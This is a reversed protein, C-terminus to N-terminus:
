SSQYHRPQLDLLTWHFESLNIGDNQQSQALISTSVSDSGQFLIMLNNPPSIHSMPRRFQHLILYRGLTTHYRVRTDIPSVDSHTLISIASSRSPGTRHLPILHAIITPNPAAVAAAWLGCGEEDGDIIVVAVVRMVPSAFTPGASGAPGVFVPSAPGAFGAPGSGAPSVFGIANENEDEIEVDVKDGEGEIKDVSEDEVKDESEDEIEARESDSDGSEEIEEGSEIEKGSEETSEESGDGSEDNESNEDDDKVRLCSSFRVPGSPGSSKVVQQGRTRKPLAVLIGSKDLARETKSQQTPPGAQDAAMDQQVHQVSSKKLGTAQKTAKATKSSHTANIASQLEPTKKRSPPPLPLAAADDNTIPTPHPSEGVNDDDTIPLPHTTTTTTTTTPSSSSM